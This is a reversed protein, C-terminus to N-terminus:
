CKHFMKKERKEVLIKCGTVLFIRMWTQLFLVQSLSM